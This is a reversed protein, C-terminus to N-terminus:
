RISLHAALWDDPQIENLFASIVTYFNSTFLTAGVDPTVEDLTVALGTDLQSFECVCLNM